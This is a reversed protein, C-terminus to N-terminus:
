FLHVVFRLRFFFRTSELNEHLAFNRVPADRRTIPKFGYSAFCFLKQPNKSM